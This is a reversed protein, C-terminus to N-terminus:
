LNERKRIFVAIMFFLALMLLIASNGYRSYFTKRFTKPITDDICGITNTELKKLVRGHCDILCSVGNNACRVIPRGEEIARLCTTRLHQEPGDTTKFWADNTINLIWKSRQSDLIEGPFVIEYCILVEFEDFGDIKICRTKSGRSFNLAGKTVKRLGMGLLFEPIFEGFPLLHRKDYIQLIKTNKAVVSFSNYISGADKSDSGTLLFVNDHKIHSSIYELIGNNENLPLTVAAEPWIILKKGTYAESFGSLSLHGELNNRFKHRNMKDEQAISPQVIRVNNQFDLHDYASSIEIKYYGYLVVFIGLAGGYILTKRYTLLSIILLFLFSVGYIGLSDAIQCFYPIDFAAYGILNWPFGTFVIGRLYEFFTWFVCFFLIQSFRDRQFMKTLLCSCASYLSLYLILAAVAIYGFDGMGVCKFPELVWYLTAGFYGLGFCFGVLFSKKLQNKRPTKNLIALLAYFMLFALYPCTAGKCFCFKALLGAIFSSTKHFRTLAIEFINKCNIKLM